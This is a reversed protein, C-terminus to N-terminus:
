TIFLSILPPLGAKPYAARGTHLFLSPPLLGSPRHRAAASDARDRHWSAINQEEVPRWSVFTMVCSRRQPRYSVVSYRRCSPYLTLTTHTHPTQASSPAIRHYTYTHHPPTRLTYLTRSPLYHIHTHPFTAPSVPCRSASATANAPTTPTGAACRGCCSAAQRGHRRACLFQYRHPTTRRTRLAARAAHSLTLHWTSLPETSRQVLITSTTRSPLRHGHWIHTTRLTRVLRNTTQLRQLYPLWYGSIQQASFLCLLMACSGCPEAVHTLRQTRM